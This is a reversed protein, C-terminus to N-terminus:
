LLADLGVTLGALDSVRRIALLIGPVFASRDFTDHRLTLTQGQAGFIVEQSAVVGPLRVSHVIVGEVVQGRASTVPGPISPQHERAESIMRATRVATGSPADAKQKHHLEIIEVDDLHGAAQAAFRMLLVAGVAFNPVVLCHAADTHAELAALDDASLGSAGVVVHVGQELLMEVNGRVSDPTSFEVAVQAGADVAADLSDGRGVRAVLELDPDAEVAACTLSGMRGGAGVVAVRLATM